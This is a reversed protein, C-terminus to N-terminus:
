GLQRRVKDTNYVAQDMVVHWCIEALKRALAVTAVAKGKKFALRNFFAKLNFDVSKAKQAAEVLLWRMNKNGQKTIHGHHVKGGSSRQSSILGTYGAFHKPSPFRSMNGVESMIVHATLQGIGPVSMLRKIDENNRTKLRIESDLKCVLENYYEIAKLREEKIRQHVPRLEVKKLWNSGRKGFIDKLLPEEVNEVRLLKKIQNKLRSRERVLGIRYRLYTRQDRLEIPAVYGEPLYGSRLLDALVKADVRDTKIRSEAILRVKYTNALHISHGSEQLYDAVWGWNEVPEIVCEMHERKRFYEKFEIGQHQLKREELVAGNKRM